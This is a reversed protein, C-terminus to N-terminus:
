STAKVMSHTLPMVLETKWDFMPRVVGPYDSPINGRVSDGEMNDYVEFGVISPERVHIIRPKQLESLACNAVFRGEALFNGPITFHARYAGPERTALCNEFQDSTLFITAGDSSLIGIEAILRKVPRLVAYEIEVTIPYRIDFRDHAVGEPNSLRIATLRVADDGPATALDQWVKESITTQGAYLYEAIVDHSSGIRKVRGHELFVVRPCIRGMTQMNHSVFLITRGQQSVSEMKGLCKTQFEADGVALVEDVILVEPELHAAVAFALRVYMGSSYRKVPTDMFEAIGSFEVIEDFKRDIEKKKMGLIAGNLYTNERGTLEPHFGTGVELLSSVRGQIVVRGETPETIHSLIKLLTSKGAGNRGILGLVEGTHVEFSVNRLAWLTEAETMPRTMQRLYRFPSGVVATFRGVSSTPQAEQVGIRYVKGLDEVIIM